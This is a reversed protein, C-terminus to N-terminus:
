LIRPVKHKTKFLVLMKQTYQTVRKWCGGKIRCLQAITGGFDEDRYTWSMNPKSGTTCMELFQHMKPKVRWNKTGAHFEGLAKYQVAFDKSHQALKTEWDVVDHSLCKYCEDLHHAALIISAHEAKTGDLLAQCQQNCFPILARAAAASAKLKPTKKPAQIGWGKLGVMGDKVHEADYFSRILDWLALRRQKKNSGPM